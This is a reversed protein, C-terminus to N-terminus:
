EMRAIYQTVHGKIDWLHIDGDDDIMSHCTSAICSDIKNEKERNMKDPQETEMGSLQEALLSNVSYIWKWGSM